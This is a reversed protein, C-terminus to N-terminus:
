VSFFVYCAIGVEENLSMLHHGCVCVFGLDLLCCLMSYWQVGGWCDRLKVADVHLEVDDICSSM